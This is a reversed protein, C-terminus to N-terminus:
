RLLEVAREFDSDGTCIVAEDYLPLTNFMDTVMEIDLNAKEIYNGDADIIRKLPKKRVTYGATTLFRYFGEDEPRNPHAATYYFANYLTKGDTLATLFRKWDIHWGLKRLAFFM